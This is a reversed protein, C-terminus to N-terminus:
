GVPIITHEKVEARNTLKTRLTALCYFARDDDDEFQEDTQVFHSDFLRKYEKKVEKLPIKLKSALQQLQEGVDTM